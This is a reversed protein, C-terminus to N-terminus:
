GNAHQQQSDAPALMRNHKFRVAFVQQGVHPSRDRDDASQADDPRGTHVHEIGDDCQEDTRCM